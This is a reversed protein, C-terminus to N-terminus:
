ANTAPSMNNISNHVVVGVKARVRIFRQSQRFRRPSGLGEDDSDDPAPSPSRHNRITISSGVGKKADALIANKIADEDKRDPVLVCGTSDGPVSGKHFRLGDRGRIIIEPMNNGFRPSNSIIINHIGEEMLYPRHLRPNDGLRELVDCNYGEVLRGHVADNYSGDSELVFRVPPDAQAVAPAFISLAFFSCFVLLSRKM